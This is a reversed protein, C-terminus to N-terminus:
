GKSVAGDSKVLEVLVQLVKNAVVMEGLVFAALSAKKQRSGTGFQRGPHRTVHRLDPKVGHRMLEVVKHYNLKAAALSKLGWRFCAAAEERGKAAV